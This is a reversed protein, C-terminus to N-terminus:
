QLKLVIPARSPSLLSSLSDRRVFPIRDRRIVRSHQSVHEIRTPTSAVRLCIERGSSYGSSPDSLHHRRTVPPHVYAARHRPPVLSSPSAISAFYYCTRHSPHMDSPQLRGYRCNLGDRGRRGLLLLIRRQWSAVVLRPLRLDGGARPSVSCFCSLVCMLVTCPGSRRM